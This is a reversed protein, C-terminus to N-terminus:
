ESMDAIKKELEAIRDNLVKLPYERVDESYKNNIKEKLKSATLSQSKAKKAWSKFADARKGSVVGDNTAKNLLNNINLLSVKISDLQKEIDSEINSAKSVNLYFDKKNLLKNIEISATGLNYKGM